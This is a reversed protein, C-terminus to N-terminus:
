IVDLANPIITLINTLRIINDNPDKVFREKPLTDEINLNLIVPNLYDGGLMYSTAPVMKNHRVLTSGLICDAYKRYIRCEAINQLWRPQDSKSWDIPLYDSRKFNFFIPNVDPNWNNDAAAVLIKGLKSHRFQSKRVNKIHVRIQLCTRFPLLYENIRQYKGYENMRRALKFKEFYKLGLALLMQEGSSFFDKKTACNKQGFFLTPYKFVKSISIAYKICHPLDDGRENTPNKQFSLEPINMIKPDKEQYDFVLNYAEEVLTNQFIPNGKRAEHVLTTLCNTGDNFVGVNLNDEKNVTILCTQALLQVLIDAQQQIIKWEKKTIQLPRQYLCCSKTKSGKIRETDFVDASESHQPVTLPDEETIEINIPSTSTRDDYQIDKSTSPVDELIFRLNRKGNKPSTNQDMRKCPSPLPPNLNMSHKQVDIEFDRWLDAM